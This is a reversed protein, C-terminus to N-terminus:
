ANFWNKELCQRLSLKARHALVWYNSSIINLEKCITETEEEDVYKMTFVARQVEKLAQRCREFVELFETNRVMKDTSWDQPLRDKLWHGKENFFSNDDDEDTLESALLETKKKYHDLIRSKLILFLWNKESVEGRFSEKTRMATIFTDHVLDRAVDREPVRKQAYAILLDAYLDVWHEPSLSTSMEEFFAIRSDLACLPAHGITLKAGANRAMIM